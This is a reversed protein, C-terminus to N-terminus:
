NLAEPKGRCSLSSMREKTHEIKIALVEQEPKMSNEWFRLLRTPKVSIHLPIHVVPNHV